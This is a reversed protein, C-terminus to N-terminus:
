HHKRVDSEFLLRHNRRKLFKIIQCINPTGGRFFVGFNM